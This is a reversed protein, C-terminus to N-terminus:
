RQIAAMKGFDLQVELLEVKEIPEEGALDLTKPNLLGNLRTLKKFAILRMSTLSNRQNKYSYLLLFEYKFLRAVLTPPVVFNRTVTGQCGAVLLLCALPNM